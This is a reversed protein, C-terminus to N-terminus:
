CVTERRVLMPVDKDEFGSLISVRIGLDADGVVHCLTKPIRVVVLTM